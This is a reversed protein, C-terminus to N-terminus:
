HHRQRSLKLMSVIGTLTPSAMNMEEDTGECCVLTFNEVSCLKTLLLLLNEEVEVNDAQRYKCFSSNCASHDGFVHAPGNRLDHRLQQVNGDISHLTIAVRAGVTLRLIANKTLGGKGKFEPHDKVLM